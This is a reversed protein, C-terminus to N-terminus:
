TQQGGAVEGSISFPLPISDLCTTGPAGSATTHYKKKGYNSAVRMLRISILPDGCRHQEDKEIVVKEESGPASVGIGPM